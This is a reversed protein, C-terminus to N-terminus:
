SRDPGVLTRGILRHIGGRLRSGLSQGTIGLEEAMEELTVTRPSEYYGREYALVLAERQTDTLDYERGGQLPALAHLGTLKAAIGYRRCAAQFESIAGADEARIEFRWQESDGISSLLTVGTETIAELVGDNDPKWEVRLLFADGVEDILEIRETGPHAGFAAVVDDSEAGRVWLYPVMTSRTPVVRELEVTVEPRNEFISGLPFQDAGITFEAVTAM